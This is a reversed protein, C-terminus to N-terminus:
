IAFYWVNSPLVLHSIIVMKVLFLHSTVSRSTVSSFYQTKLAITSAWFRMCHLFKLGPRYICVNMELFFSQNTFMSGWSLPFWHAWLIHYFTAMKPVNQCKRGFVALFNFNRFVAQCLTPLCWPWSDQGNIAWVCSRHAISLWFHSKELPQCKWPITWKVNPPVIDFFLNLNSWACM